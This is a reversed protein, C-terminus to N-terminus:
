QAYTSLEEPRPTDTIDTYFYLWRKPSVPLTAEVNKSDDGNLISKVAVYPLSAAGWFLCSFWDLVYSGVDGSWM